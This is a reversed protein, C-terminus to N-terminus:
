QGSSSGQDDDVTVNYLLIGGGVAAAGLIITSADPGSGAVVSQQGGGARGAFEQYAGADEEVRVCYDGASGTPQTITVKRQSGIALQCSSGVSLGFSGSGTAIVSGDDVASGNEARMSAGFNILVVEGSPLRISGANAAGAVPTTRCTCDAYPDPTQANASNVSVIAVASLALMGSMLLKMENAGYMKLLGIKKKLSRIIRDLKRTL